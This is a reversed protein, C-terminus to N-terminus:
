AANRQPGSIQLAPSLHEGVAVTEAGKREYGRVALEGTAANCVAALKTWRNLIPPRVWRFSMDASSGHDLLSTRRLHSDSKAARASMGIGRARGELDDSLWDNAIAPQERHIRARIDFREIVCGESPKTGAITFLVPQAVRIAPNTLMAVATDFDPADDCVQRLLHAAPIGGSQWVQKWGVLTDLATLGTFTQQPAQNIAVSFRGECLATLVGVAGAWTVNLWLGANSEHRAVIVEDGLGPLAWDLARYLVPLGDENAHVGTTCCWEYVTNLAYIGPGRAEAAIADLEELFPNNNTELWSRSLRDPVGMLGALGFTARKRLREADDPRARFLAVPNSAEVFPIAKM